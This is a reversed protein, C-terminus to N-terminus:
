PIQVCTGEYNLNPGQVARFTGQGTCEVGLRKAPDPDGLVFLDGAAFWVFDGFTTKMHTATVEVVVSTTSPPNTTLRYRGPAPKM